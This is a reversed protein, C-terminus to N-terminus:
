DPREALRWGTPPHDVLGLRLLAELAGRVEALGLGATRAISETTAPRHVPV